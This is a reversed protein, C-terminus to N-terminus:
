QRGQQLLPLKESGIFLFYSSFQSFSTREKNSFLSSTNLDELVSQPNYGAEM